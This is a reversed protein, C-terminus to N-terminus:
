LWGKKIKKVVAAAPKQDVGCGARLHRELQSAMSTVKGASVARNWEDKTSKMRPRRMIDSARPLRKPQHHLFFQEYTMFDLDNIMDM